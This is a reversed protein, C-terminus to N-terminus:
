WHGRFFLVFTMSSDLEAPLEIEGGGVVHLTLNPFVEGPNLKEAMDQRM